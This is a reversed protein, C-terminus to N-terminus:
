REDMRWPEVLRGEACPTDFPLPLFRELHNYDEAKCYFLLSFILSFYDPQDLVNKVARDDPFM